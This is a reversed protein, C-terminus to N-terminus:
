VVEVVCDCSGIESPVLGSSQPHDQWRARSTTGACTAEPASSLFELGANRAVESLFLRASSLQQPTGAGTELLALLGCQYCDRDTLEAEIWARVVLPLEGGLSISFLVIDAKRLAETALQIIRPHFFSRLKWWSFRLDISEGLSQVLHADACMARERSTDDQYVVLVTVSPREGLTFDEVEISPLANTQM